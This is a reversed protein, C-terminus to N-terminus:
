GPRFIRRLKVMSAHLLRCMITGTDNFDLRLWKRLNGRLRAASLLKLSYDRIYYDPDRGYETTEFGVNRALDRDPWAVVWGADRVQMSFDHDNPYRNGLYHGHMRIGNDFFLARRIVSTTCVNERAIWVLGEYSGRHFRAEGEFLGLQGLSPIRDFCDLVYRDWGPLYVYDNEMIHLYRGACRQLGANIASAPDNRPMSIVGTVGPLTSIENLWSPTEDTSGNDVVFLQNPVSITALYSALCQRSLPLRNWCLM